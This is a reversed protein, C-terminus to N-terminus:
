KQRFCLPSMRVVAPGALHSMSLQDMSKRSGPDLWLSSVQQLNRGGQGLRLGGLLHRHQQLACPHGLEAREWGTTRKRREVPERVEGKTQLHKVKSTKTHISILLCKIKGTAKNPSLERM